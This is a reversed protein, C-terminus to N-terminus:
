NAAVSAAVGQTLLQALESFDCAYLPVDFQEQLETFRIGDLMIPEDSEFHRAPHNCLRGDSALSGGFLRGGDALRRRQRRWRFLRQKSLRCQDKRRIN